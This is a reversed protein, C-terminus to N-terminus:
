LFLFVLILANSFFTNIKEFLIFWNWNVGPDITSKRMELILDDEGTHSKEAPKPQQNKFLPTSVIKDIELSLTFVASKVYYVCIVCFKRSSFIRINNLTESINFICFIKLRTLHNSNPKDLQWVNTKYWFHSSVLQFQPFICHREMYILIVDTFSSCYLYTTAYTVLDPIKPKQRVYTCSTGWEMQLVSFDTIKHQVKNCNYVLLKWIGKKM